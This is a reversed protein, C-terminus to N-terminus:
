FFSGILDQKNRIIFIVFDLVDYCLGSNLFNNNDRQRVIQRFVEGLALLVFLIEVFIIVMVIFCDVINRLVLFGVHGPELKEVLRCLEFPYNLVVIIKVCLKQDGIGGTGGADAERLTFHVSVTGKDRDTNKM